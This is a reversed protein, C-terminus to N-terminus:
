FRQETNSLPTVLGADWSVAPGWESGTQIWSLVVPQEKGKKTLKSGITRRSDESKKRVLDRKMETHQQELWM